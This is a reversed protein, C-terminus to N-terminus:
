GSPCTWGTYPNEVIGGVYRYLEDDNAFSTMARETKEADSHRVCSDADVPGETM